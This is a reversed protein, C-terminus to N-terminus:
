SHKVSWISPYLISLSVNPSLPLIGEARERGVTSPMVGQVPHRFIGRRASRGDFPRGREVTRSRPNSVNTSIPPPFSYLTDTLISSPSLFSSLFIFLVFSMGYLAVMTGNGSPSIMVENVADKLDAIFTDVMSVTLRKM